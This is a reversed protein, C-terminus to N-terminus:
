PVVGMGAHIVDAGVRSGHSGFPVHHRLGGTVPREDLDREAEVSARHVALRSASDDPM